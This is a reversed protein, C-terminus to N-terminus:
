IIHRREYELPGYMSADLKAFRWYQGGAPCFFARGYEDATHSSAILGGHHPCNATAAARAEEATIPPDAIESRPYPLKWEDAKPAGGQLESIKM